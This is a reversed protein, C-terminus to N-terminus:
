VNYSALDLEDGDEEHECLNTPFGETEEYLGFHRELIVWKKLFDVMCIGLLFSSVIGESELMEVTYEGTLLWRKGLSIAERLQRARPKVLSVDADRLGAPTGLPELERVVGRIAEEVVSIPKICCSFEFSSQRNLIGLLSCFSSWTGLLLKHDLPPYKPRLFEARAYKKRAPYWTTAFAHMAFLPSESLSDEGGDVSTDCDGRDPGGFALRDTAIRAMASAFNISENELTKRAFNIPIIIFFISMVFVSFCTIAARYLAVRWLINLGASSSDDYEGPDLGFNGLVCIIWAIIVILGTDGWNRKVTQVSFGLMGVLIYEAIFSPRAGANALLSVIGLASGAIAGLTYLFGERVAQGVYEIQEAVLLAPVFAWLAYTDVTEDRADWYVLLEGLGVMVVTFRLANLIAQGDFKIGKFSVKVYQKISFQPRDTSTGRADELTSLFDRMLGVLLFVKITQISRPGSDIAEKMTTELKDINNVLRPESSIRRSSLETLATCIEGPLIGSRSRNSVVSHLSSLASFCKLLKEGVLTSVHDQSLANLCNIKRKDLDALSGPLFAEDLIADWYAWFKSEVLTLEPNIRTHNMLFKDLLYAVGIPIMAGCCGSLIARLPFADPAEDDGCYMTMTLFILTTTSLSVLRRPLLMHFFLLWPAACAVAIYQNYDKSGDIAYSVGRLILLWIVCFIGGVLIGFFHRVAKETIQNRSSAYCLCSVIPALVAMRVNFWNVVVFIFLFLSSLGISIATSVPGYLIEPLKVSM